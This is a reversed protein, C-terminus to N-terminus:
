VCTRTRTIQLIKLHSLVSQGARIKRSEFNAPFAHLAPIVCGDPCRSRSGRALKIAAYRTEATLPICLSVTPGRTLSEPRRLYFRSPLFIQSLAGMEGWRERKRQEAAAGGLDSEGATAVMAGFFVIFPFFGELARAATGGPHICPSKMCDVTVACSTSFRMASPRTAAPDHLNGPVSAFGFGRSPM